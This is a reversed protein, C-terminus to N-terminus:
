AAPRELMERVLPPMATRATPRTPRWGLDARIRDSRMRFSTVLSAVLPRGLLLGLLAPPATGVPGRGTASAVLDTITRLPLPEDDVVVYMSGPAAGTLAAVYAAALDDVHVSSWYNAGRGICRLRGKVAQDVFATRFLGAAGYVFGPALRVVDLGRERHAAELEHAMATHGEGLPSPTLPTSEDIWADGHDGFDFCGGTYVLRRGHRVCADALARTATADAANQVRMKKRTLPGGSTLQATHVVADVEGVLPVYGGPERMDGRHLTAGATALDAARAPDRVLGVVEHGEGLLTRSVSSGIFGTAGTVLVRM